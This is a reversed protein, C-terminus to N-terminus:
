LTMGDTAKAPGSTVTVRLRLAGKGKLRGARRPLRVKTRGAGVKRSIRFATRKGRTVSLVVRGARSVSVPVPRHALVLRRYSRQRGPLGVLLRRSNRRPIMKLDFNDSLVVSGDRLVALSDLNTFAARGAPVGNPVEGGGAFTTIRGGASVRRIRNVSDDAFLFGGGPLVAVAQPLMGAKTAPGNDGSFRGSGSGAITTLAGTASVRDVQTGTSVLFGGTPLTAVDVVLPMTAVTTIRGDPAVRRVRTNDAYDGGTGGETVLFGGDPTASLERPSSLLAATAPGGDGSYGGGADDGRCTGAVVTLAGSPSRRRVCSEGAQSFVVSGDRLVAVGSPLGIRSAPGILTHLRGAPDITRIYPAARSDGTTEDSIVLSGDALEAVGTPYLKSTLGFVPRATGRQRPQAVATFTRDAFCDGRDQYSLRGRLRGGRRFTGSLRVQADGDVFHRFTGKRSIATADFEVDSVFGLGGPEPRGQCKGPIRSGDFDYVRKGDRSVTVRVQSQGGASGVYTAGRLPRAAQAASASGAVTLAVGITTLALRRGHSM